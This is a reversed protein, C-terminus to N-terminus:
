VVHVHAAPFIRNDKHLLVIGSRILTEVRIVGFGEDKEIQHLVGVVLLAKKESRFHIFLHRFAGNRVASADPLIRKEYQPFRFHRCDQYLRAEYGVTRVQFGQPRCGSLIGDGLPKEIGEFGEVAPTDGNDTTDENDPWLSTWTSSFETHALDMDYLLVFNNVAQSTLTTTGSSTDTTAIQTTISAIQSLVGANPVMFYYVESSDAPTTNNRLRQYTVEEVYNDYVEENDKTSTTNGSFISIANGTQDKNETKDKGTKFSTAFAYSSLKMFSYNLTPYGYNFDYNSSAYINENLDGIIESTTKRYDAEDNEAEDNKLNNDNIANYDFYSNEDITSGYGFVGINFGSDASTMQGATTYDNWDLKAISYCNSIKAQSNGNAFAYMNIDIYSVM